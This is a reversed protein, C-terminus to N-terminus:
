LGRHRGSNKARKVAFQAHRILDEAEGVEDVGRAIGISCDVRIEFDSLRFPNALSAEIRKAVQLADNESM